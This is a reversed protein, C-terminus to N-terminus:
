CNTEKWLVHIGCVQKLLKWKLPGGVSVSCGFFSYEGVGRGVVCVCYEEVRMEYM